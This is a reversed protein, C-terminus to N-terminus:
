LAPEQGDLDTSQRRSFRKQARCSDAPDQEEPAPALQYACNPAEGRVLVVEHHPTEQRLEAAAYCVCVGLYKQTSRNSNSGFVANCHQLSVQGAELVLNVADSEVLPESIVLGDPEMNRSSHSSHDHAWRAQRHSGRIVRICGNKPSSDTIAIWVSVLRPESLKWPYSTQHWSVYRGDRPAKAYVRSSHILIDPGILQGVMDLILPNTALEYAWPFHLHCQSVTGVVLKGGSQSELEELCARYHDVEAKSLAPLSFVFGDKEYSDIQQETLLSM